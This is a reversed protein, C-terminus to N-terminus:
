PGDGAGEDPVSEQQERYLDAIGTMLRGVMTRAQDAGSDDTPPAMRMSRDILTAAAHALARKDAPPPEPVAQQHYLGDKGGFSYVTTPEWLQELLRMGDIHLTYAAEARLAALDAARARTAAEVEPGREFSGGVAAVTQSVLAASRGTRRRIENRGLGQAHLALIEARDDDTVPRPAPRRAVM